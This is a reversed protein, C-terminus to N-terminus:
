SQRTLVIPIGLTNRTYEWPIGVTAFFNFASKDRGRRTKGHGPIGGPPFTYFPIFPYGNKNGAPYGKLPIGGPIGLPCM